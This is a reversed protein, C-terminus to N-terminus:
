TDLLSRMTFLQVSAVPGSSIFVTWTLYTYEDTPILFPFMKFELFIDLIFGFVLICFIMWFYVTKITTITAVLCLTIFSWDCVGSGVVSIAIM